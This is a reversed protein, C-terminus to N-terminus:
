NLYGLLFYNLSLSNTKAKIVVKIVLITKIHLKINQEIKHLVCVNQNNKLLVNIGVHIWESPSM